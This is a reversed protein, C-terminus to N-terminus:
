SNMEEYDPYKRVLSYMTEENLIGIEDLTNWAEEGWHSTSFEQLEPSYKRFQFDSNLKQFYEIWLHLRIKQTDSLIENLYIIPTNILNGESMPIQLLMNQYLAYYEMASKVDQREIMQVVEYSNLIIDDYVWKKLIRFHEIEQMSYIGQKVRDIYQIPTYFVYDLTIKRLKEEITDTLLKLM